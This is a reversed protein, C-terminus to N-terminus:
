NLIARFLRWRNPVGKLAYTGCNELALGSGAVLDTQSVLVEGSAALAAVRAGIASIKTKPLRRLALDGRSENPQTGVGSLFAFPVSTLERDRCLVM